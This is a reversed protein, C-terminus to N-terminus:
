TTGSVLGSIIASKLAQPPKMMSAVPRAHELEFHEGGGVHNWGHDESHGEAPEPGM